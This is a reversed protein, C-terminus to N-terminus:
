APRTSGAPWTARSRTRCSWTPSSSRTPTISWSAWAQGQAHAAARTGFAAASSTSCCGRSRRRCRGYRILEQDVVVTHLWNATENAFYEPSTVRLQRATDDVATVLVSSGTRALRPDPIPTVYADNTNIFNTLTHAGSASASRTPRGSSAGCARTGAPSHNPDLQYHGWSAFAGPPLADDPRCAPHLRAARRCQGGHVRRDPVGARGDWQKVWTGGVLPHPLREAREIAGIRALADGAPQRFLAVKSGVVTEGPM